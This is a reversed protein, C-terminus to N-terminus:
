SSTRRTKLTQMIQSVHWHVQRSVLPRRLSEFKPHPRVRPSTAHRVAKSRPYVIRYPLQGDSTRERRAPKGCLRSFHSHRAELGARRSTFPAGVVSSRGANQLKGRPICGGRARRTCSACATEGRRRSAHRPLNAETEYLLFRCITVASQDPGDGLMEIGSSGSCHRTSLPQVTNDASSPPRHRITTLSDCTNALCWRPSM